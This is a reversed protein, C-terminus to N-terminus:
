LADGQRDIWRGLTAFTESAAAVIEDERREAMAVQDLWRLVDQWRSSRAHGDGDGAFFACGRAPRLGLRHEVARAIIAGGLASGELVYLCGALHERRSLPPLDDCRALGELEETVAGLAELDRAISSARARLPFGPPGCSAVLRALPPELAAYYGYFTRLVARYRDLTLEPALLDLRAELAQHLAATETRLRHHISSCRM